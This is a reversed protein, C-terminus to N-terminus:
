FIGFANLRDSRRVFSVRSRMMCSFKQNMLAQTQRIEASPIHKLSHPTITIYWQVDSVIYIYM